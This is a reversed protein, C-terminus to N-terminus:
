NPCVGRRRRHDTPTGAYFAMRGAATYDHVSQARDHLVSTMLKRMPHTPLSRGHSDVSMKSLRWSPARSRPGHLLSGFLSAVAHADPPRCPATPAHDGAGDQPLPPQPVACTQTNLPGRAGCGHSGPAPRHATIRSMRRARRRGHARAPCRAAFPFNRKGKRAM